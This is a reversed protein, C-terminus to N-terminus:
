APRFPTTPSRRGLDRTLEMEVIAVANREDFALSRAVAQARDILLQVAGSTEIARGTMWQGVHRRGPARSRLESPARRHTWM